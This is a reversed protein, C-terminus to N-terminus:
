DCRDEEIADEALQTEAEDDIKLVTRERERERRAGGGGGGRRRRRERRRRRRERRRRRDLRRQARARARSRRTTVSRRKWRTELAADSVQIGPYLQQTRARARRGEAMDAGWAARMRWAARGKVRGQAMGEGQGRRKVWGREQGMGQVGELGMRGEERPGKKTEDRRTYWACGSTATTSPRRASAFSSMGVPGCRRRPSTRWGSRRATAMRSPPSPSLARSFVAVRIAQARSSM